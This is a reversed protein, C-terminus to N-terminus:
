RKSLTLQRVALRTNGSRSGVVATFIQATKLITLTHRREVMERGNAPVWVARQVRLWEITERVALPNYIWAWGHDPGGLPRGDPSVRHDWDGPELVVATPETGPRHRHLRGLRQLLVDAPVADTILLDADIDLSQELTQTGVIVIGARQGGPGLVRLVEHDLYKRDVDAYRSHHLMVPTGTSQLTHFDNLADAITSRIWLVAEDRSVAAVARSLAGSRGEIIIRTTRVENVHVDFVPSRTSVAPYQRARAAAVSVRQRSELKARLTEGLTASMLLVYGGYTLHESVLRTIIESMYPDSAHVEDIVVLQRALCWARLWSHRTRLQSLMAQDITGVAIPAAM